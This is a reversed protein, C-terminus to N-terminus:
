FRIQLPIMVHHKLLRAAIVLIQKLAESSKSICLLDRFIMVQTVAATNESLARQGKIHYASLRWEDKLSLFCWCYSSINLIFNLARWFTMVLM